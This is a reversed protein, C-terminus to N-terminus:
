PTGQFEVVILDGAMLLYNTASEGNRAIRWWDVPLISTGRIIVIKAKTLKPILQKPLSAMVDLVTEEKVPRAIQRCVGSQTVQIRYTPAEIIRTEFSNRGSDHMLVLSLMWFGIM